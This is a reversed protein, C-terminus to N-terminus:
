QNLASAARGSSGAKIGRAVMQLEVKPPDLTKKQGRHASYVFPACACMCDFCMCMFYFSFSFLSIWSRVYRFIQEVM